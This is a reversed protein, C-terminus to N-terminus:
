FRPRDFGYDEDEEGTDDVSEAYDEAEVAADHAVSAYLRAQETLEEVERRLRETRERELVALIHSQAAASQASEVRNVLTRVMYGVLLVSLALIGLHYIEAM